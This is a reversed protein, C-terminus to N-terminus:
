NSVKPVAEFTKIQCGLKLNKEVLEALNFAIENENIFKVIKKSPHVNVELYKPKM